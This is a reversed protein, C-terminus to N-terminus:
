EESDKDGEEFDGDRHLQDIVVFYIYIYIEIGGRDVEINGFPTAYETM